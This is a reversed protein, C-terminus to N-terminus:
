EAAPPPRPAVPGSTEITKRAEAPTKTKPAPSTDGKQADAGKPSDAAKSDGKGPEAEKSAGKEDAKKEDAKKEEEVKKRTVTVKKIVPPTKPREGGVVEVSALKHVLDVPGCEGFITYGSSRPDGEKYDLHPAAADTIFFQASNTNPGRNAMCLLGPRDHFADEWVEDPIVFGAEGTGNKKADGGQIMFGKIIRHFVTGDYAPAKVWQGDPNKWTRTGRALGIFNAVTIPAKTDFLKCELTGMDTEISAFLANGKPLGKVADELTWKGSLPDDPSPKIEAAPKANIKRKVPAPPPVPRQQAKTDGQPKAKTDAAAQTQVPRPEPAPEPTPSECGSLALPILLTPTLIFIFKRHNVGHTKRRIARPTLDRKM